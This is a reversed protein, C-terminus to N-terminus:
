CVVTASKTTTYILQGAADFGEVVGTWNDTGHGLCSATAYVNSKGFPVVKSTSARSYWSVGFKESIKAKVTVISNDCRNVHATLYIAGKEPVPLFTSTLKNACAASASGALAVNATLALTSSILIAIIKKKM